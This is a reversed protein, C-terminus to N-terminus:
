DCSKMRFIGSLAKATIIRFTTSKNQYKLCTTSDPNKNQCRQVSTGFTLTDFIDIFIRRFKGLFYLKRADVIDILNDQTVIPRQFVCFNHCHSDTYHCRIFCVFVTYFLRFGDIFWLSSTQFLRSHQLNTNITAGIVRLNWLGIECEM